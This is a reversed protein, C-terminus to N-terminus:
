AHAKMAVVKGGSLYEHLQAAWAELAERKEDDYDYISYVGDTIGARKHGLVASRIHPPMRLKALETGCTRRQDHVTFHGGQIAPEEGSLARDLARGLAHAHIPKDGRPSPFVPGSKRPHLSKLIAVAPDTLPVRQTAAPKNRSGKRRSGPVTWWGSSLDIEQWDMGAVEGPRQGTVLVLRLAARVAATCAADDLGRWFAVIEDPSLARQRAEETGGPRPIHATPDTPNVGLRETQIAWRFMRRVCAQVRNAMRELLRVVQARTVKEAKVAGLVPIVEKRLIRQDAQWSKKERKAYREIFDTALQEVTPAELIAARDARRLAAVDTGADVQQWLREAEARATALTVEGAREPKKAYQGITVRKLKGADMGQRRYSYFFSRVGSPFVRVGFGRTETPETFGSMSVRKVGSPFVRVGLGRTESDFVDFRSARPKLNDLFKVNFPVAM